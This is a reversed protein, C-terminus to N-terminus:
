IKKKDLKIRPPIRDLFFLFYGVGSIFLFIMFFSVWKYRKM